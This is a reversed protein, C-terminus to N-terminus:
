TIKRAQVRLVQFPKMVFLAVLQGMRRNRGINAFLPSFHQQALCFATLIKRILFRSQGSPYVAAVAATRM